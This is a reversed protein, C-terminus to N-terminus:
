FILFILFVIAPKNAIRAYGEACMACAQEHNNCIYKFNSKGLSDLLHAAAGGSVTFVTDLGKQSLYKFVYDSFKIKM